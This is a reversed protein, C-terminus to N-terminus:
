LEIKRPPAKDKMEQLKSSIPMTCHVNKILDKGIQRAEVDDIASFPIRITLCYDKKDVM